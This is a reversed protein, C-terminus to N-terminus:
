NNIIDETIRLKLDHIITRNFGKEKLKEILTEAKSYNNLKIQTIILYYLLYNIQSSSFALTNNKIHYNITMETKKYYSKKILNKIYLVLINYNYYNNSVAEECIELSKLINGNKEYSKAIIYNSTIILNKEHLSLNDIDFKKITEKLIRIAQQTKGNDKLLVAYETIQYNNLLNKRYLKELINIAQKEKNNKSLIIAKYYIIDNSILSKDIHENITDLISEAMNLKNNKILTEITFITFEKNYSNNKILYNMKSLLTEISIDIMREELLYNVMAIIDNSSYQYISNTKLWIKLTSLMNKAHEIKNKKMYIYFMRVAILPNKRESHKIQTIYFVAEDLKNISIMFDTIELIVEINNYNILTFVDKYLKEANDKKGNRHLFRAYEIKLEIDEPYKNVINKYLIDAEKFTKKNIDYNKNLFIQKDKTDKYYGYNNILKLHYINPYFAAFNYYLLILVILLIFIIFTIIQPFPFYKNTKRKKSLPNKINRESKM